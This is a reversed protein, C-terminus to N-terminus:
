QFLLKYCSYALLCVLLHGAFAHDARHTTRVLGFCCKLFEFLEEVRHRAQLCAVQFQSALKKMNKRIATILQIGRRGLEQAKSQSLYGRDGVVGGTAMWHCLPDLMRRDDLNAASLGVACLRGQEDCQVHLKFGYWWGMGNRSKRALGSFTRHQSARAVKCVPLATSDQFVLPHGEQLRRHHALFQALLGKLELSVRNTAAVFKSYHPLRPFEARHYQAFFTYLKAKDNLGRWAGFILMTIVEAASLNPQGGRRDDPLQRASLYPELEHLRDDITVFLKLLTDPQSITQQILM